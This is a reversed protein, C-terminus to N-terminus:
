RGYKKLLDRIEALLVAEPSPKPPLAPKAAESMQLRTLARIALFLVFSIIVFNIV